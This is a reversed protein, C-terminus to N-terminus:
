HAAVPHPASGNREPDGVTASEAEPSVPELGDGGARSSRAAWWPQFTLVAKVGGPHTRAAAVVASLSDVTDVNLRAVLVVETAAAIEATTSASEGLAGADVIVIGDDGHAEAAADRLLAAVQASGSRASAGVVVIRADAPAACQAFLTRALHMRATQSEADTRRLRALGVEPAIVGQLAAPDVADVVDFASRVRGSRSRHGTLVALALVGGLLGGFVAGFPWHTDSHEDASPPALVDLGGPRTAQLEINARLAAIQGRRGPDRAAEATWRKFAESVSALQEDVRSRLGTAYLDIASRVIRTAEAPTAGTAMLTVVPSTANQTVTFDVPGSKRLRTALAQAFGQGSLYAVEGTVYDAASTASQDASAGTAMAMLDVPPALRIQASATPAEDQPHYLATGLAAGVAVGVLAVVTMTVLWANASSRTM